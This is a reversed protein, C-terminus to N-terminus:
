LKDCRYSYTPSFLKQTLCEETAETAKPHLKVTDRILNLQLSVCHGEEWEVGGEGEQWGQVLNSVAHRRPAFHPAFPVVLSSRYM